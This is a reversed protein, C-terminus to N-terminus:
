IAKGKHCAGKVYSSKMLIDLKSEKKDFLSSKLSFMYSM